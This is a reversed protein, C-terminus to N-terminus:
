ARPRKSSASCRAGAISRNCMWFLRKLRSDPFSAVFALRTFM